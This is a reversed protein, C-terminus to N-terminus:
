LPHNGTGGAPLVIHGGLLRSGINCRLRSGINCRLRSGINCRLLSGINCRLLSGVIGTGRGDRCEAM